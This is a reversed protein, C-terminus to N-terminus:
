AARRGPGSVTPAHDLPIGERAAQASLRADEVPAAPAGQMFTNRLSLILHALGSELANASSHGKWALIVGRRAAAAFRQEVTVRINQEAQAGGEDRRVVVVAGPAALEADVSSFSAQVIPSGLTEPDTVVVVVEHAARASRLATGLERQQDMVRWPITQGLVSEFAAALSAGGAFPAAHLGGKILPLIAVGNTVPRDTEHFISSMLDFNIRTADEAPLDIARVAAVIREALTLVIEKRAEAHRKLAYMTRLGKEVYVPAEAAGGLHFGELAPPMPASVWMVPFLPRRAQDAAPSTQEWRRIRELFVRLEKGCFQSALFAPTCIAVLAKCTTIEAALKKRFYEGDEIKEADFFAIDQAQEKDLHAMVHRSLDSIFRDLYDERNRHAYSTFFVKAM